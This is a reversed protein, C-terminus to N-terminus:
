KGQDNYKPQLRAIEKGEQEEAESEDSCVEFGFHTVDPWGDGLLHDQLRDKISEGSMGVYHVPQLANESNVEGCYYVGISDPANESISDEDFSFQGKYPEIM